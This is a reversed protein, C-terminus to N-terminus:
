YRSPAAQLYHRIPHPTYIDWSEGEKPPVVNPYMNLVPEYLEEAPNPEM